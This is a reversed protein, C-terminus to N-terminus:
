AKWLFLPGEQAYTALLNRHPHHAVGIVEKEHVQLLVAVFLVPTLLRCPPVYMHVETYRGLHAGDCHVDYCKLYLCM